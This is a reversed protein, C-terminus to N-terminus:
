PQTEAALLQREQTIGGYGYSAACCEIIHVNSHPHVGGLVESFLAFARRQFEAKEQRTITGKTVTVELRFSNKRWASLSARDIFWLRHPVYRVLVMTKEPHKHLVSCTLNTIEEALRQALPEDPEGSLTLAIGPM